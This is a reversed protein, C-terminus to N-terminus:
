RLVSFTIIDPSFSTAIGSVFVLLSALLLMRARGFRPPHYTWM